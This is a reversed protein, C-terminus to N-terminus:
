RRWNLKKVDINKLFKWIEEEAVEKFSFAIENKTVMKMEIISPHSAYTDKIKSIASHINMDCFKHLGTDLKSGTTKEIINVYHNNFTESM